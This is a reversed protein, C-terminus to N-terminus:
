ESISGEVIFDTLGLLPKKYVVRVIPEYETPNTKLPGGLLVIEYKYTKAEMAATHDHMFTVNFSFDYDLWKTGDYRCYFYEDNDMYRHLRNEDGAAPTWTDDWIHGDQEFRPVGKYDRIIDDDFVILPVVDGGLKIDYKLRFDSERSYASDRVIFRIIMTNTTKDEPNTVMGKDIILPAGSDKDIVSASYTPTEGKIIYIKNNVIRV